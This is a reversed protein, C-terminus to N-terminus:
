YVVKDNPIFRFLYGIAASLLVIVAGCVGVYLFINNTVGIGMGIVIIGCIFVTLVLNIILTQNIFLFLITMIMSMLINILTMLVLVGFLVTLTIIQQSYRSMSFYTICGFIYGIISGVLSCTVCKSLLVARLSYVTLMKEFTKNLKEFEISNQILQMCMIMGPVYAGIFMVSDNSYNNIVFYYVIVCLASLTLLNKKWQSKMFYLEKIMLAM